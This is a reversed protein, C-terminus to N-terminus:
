YVTLKFDPVYQGVKIKHNNYVNKHYFPELDNIESDTLVRLQYLAECAASYASTSDGDEIKLALGWGRDRIGVCFVGDAGMKSFLRGKTVRMLLTDFGGEGSVMEPYTVMANVIKAAAERYPSGLVSPEAMKAFAIAMNYVPMGFVPVGCGDIGITIDDKEVESFISIIELIEKQLPHEPDIYNDLPYGKKLCTALMGSHKGSCNCTVEDFEVGARLMESARKDNLPKLVGCELYTKDLGLKKLISNITDVHEEDGRHSACIIALEKDTIGYEEIAGSLVVNVAQIPKAASRMYSKKGINGASAIVRGKCDVVAIDGRHINEVLEGRYVLVLNESM